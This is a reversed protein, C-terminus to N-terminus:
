EQPVLCRIEIGPVFGALTPDVTVPCSPTNTLVTPMTSTSASNWATVGYTYTTAAGAATDAVPFVPAAGVQQVLTFTTATSAKRYVNYGSVTGSSLTWRLDIESCSPATATLNTPPPLTTTTSSGARTTTTTTPPRTTTTTTTARLTTTTVTAPRTTTTTTQPPRLTTTSSLGPPVVTLTFNGQTGSYGDVFIYYSQGATVTPTIRSARGVGTANPCADDNCGSVMETGGSCVGSRVYLVTDFNTSGGCTQITATGSVAPTWQFVQEPSSGANACSGAQLNTGSTTGSFTGGQAPILTPSDCGGPLTTTTTSTTATTTTPPDLTTTTTSTTTTSTTAACVPTRVSVSGSKNSENGARDVASVAYSYTTSALLGADTTSTAPAPVQKLFVGGRYVKYGQVGSGSDTSATWSLNIQDCSSALARLGSPVSPARTDAKTTASAINSYASFADTVGSAPNTSGFARVQYYHTTSQTLGLDRYTRVNVGVAGIQVFASAPDLTREILYGSEQSNTDRWSLDIEASTKVTAALSTPARLPSTVAVINGGAVTGQCVALGERRCRRLTQRKCALHRGGAAVCAAIEDACAQRCQRALSAADATPAVLLVALLALPATFRRTMAGQRM